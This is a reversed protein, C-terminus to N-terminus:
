LEVVLLRSGTPQESGGSPEITVGIATYEKLPVSAEILVTTYDQGSTPIFLGASFREGDADILWIQYIQAADLKPLNWLLLVATTRDRDLLVSGTLDQVDPTVLLIQTNPYALMSIAAQEASVREALAIQQERLDRVQMASFVNLGILIVL